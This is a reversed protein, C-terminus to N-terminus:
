SGPRKPWNWAETVTMWVSWTTAAASTVLNHSVCMEM